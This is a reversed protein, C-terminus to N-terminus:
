RLHYKYNESTVIDIPLLEQSPLQKQFLFHEALNGIGLYAQRKPKQHILFDIRKKKLHKLNQELLDYGVMTYTRRDKQLFSVLLHAKSNTVFFAGIHPHSELFLTFGTKFRGTGDATLNYTIIKKTNEKKEKFYDRFGIEKQRMHLEENIHIIAIQTEAVTIKDILNAAVRGTQVLDQGIFNEISLADIHNNFSALLIGKERCRQFVKLSEKHFIPVVLLADPKPHLALDSKQIFDDSKYPNYSYEEVVVGFRGFEKAAERAGELAPLWYPDIEHDPLVVGIKYTKNNKLNRAIPNPRYDIRKLVSDVKQFADQSVRGRKHLVRDVTGKSVGAFEAIDKITYKRTDM